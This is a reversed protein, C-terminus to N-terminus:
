ASLIRAWQVAFEADTLIAQNELEALDKLQRM